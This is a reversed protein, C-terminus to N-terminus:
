GRPAGELAGELTRRRLVGILFAFLCLISGLALPLAFGFQDALVGMALAGLAPGGRNILGFLSLVRGRMAPDVSAQVLTQSGAGNLVQAFGLAFVMALAIRFDGAFAFLLLAAALLFLNLVVVRTLGAVADRQGLYLGAVIAGVGMVSLMLGLGDAGQGYVVAAIGPFLEIVPRAGFASMLRMPIMTAIGPHRAAYGFGEVAEAMVGSGGAHRQWPPLDVFRLLVMFVVFSAANIAFVTVVGGGGAIVFGAVAPGVFRACNFILSNTAIAPALAERDVLSSVLAQRAPQNVALIVGRLLMLFILLHITMLGAAVLGALAAAHIAAAGQTIRLLRMRDIRDAFVGALPGLLVTPFMDAFAIAGLWAGSGTMDWALWGVGVRQMWSGVQSLGSGVAFYRYNRYSFARRFGHFRNAFAM